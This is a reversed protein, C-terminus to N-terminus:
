KQDRLYDPQVQRASEHTRIRRTQHQVGLHGNQEERDRGAPLM